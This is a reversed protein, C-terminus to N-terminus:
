PNKMDAPRLPPKWGPEVIETVLRKVLERNTGSKLFAEGFRGYIPKGGRAAPLTVYKDV